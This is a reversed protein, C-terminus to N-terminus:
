RGTRSGDAVPGLRTLDWMSMQQSIVRTDGPRLPAAPAGTNTLTFDNRGARLDVELTVTREEGATVTRRWGGPGSIELTRPVSVPISRLAFTVRHRGAEPAHVWMRGEDRLFRYERGGRLQPPWWSSRQFIAVADLPPATITWLASADPFIRSLRFGPPPTYPDPSALGGAAYIPPSILVLDVGLTRLRAAADPATPSGTGTTVDSGISRGVPDGNVIRLGHVVQGYMHYREILEDAGAPFNYVLTDRPAEDRLWAWAPVDEPALGALALPPDSPLPVGAGPPLEFLSIGLALVLLVAGAAPRMRRALWWLGVAAVVILVATVAVAFRAYVRLFPALDFIVGSPTPIRVGWWRTPTALSFWGLVLVLPGSTVLVLRIRRSLRAWGRMAVVAAVAALALTLYGVFAAREGGPAGLGAWRDNGLLARFAENTSDPVLYDGVRAGYVELEIRSRGFADSVAGRASLFLAALPAVVLVAMPLVVQGCRRLAERAGGERAGEGASALAGVAVILLAMTGYYPNTMWCLATAAALWWGRRRDPREMWRWLALLLLPFCAILALPYHTSARILANPFVAFAVAAWAAALPGLGLWRILLWMAAPALVMGLLLSLNLAAIPGTVQGIAWAPGLFVIQLVNASAPMPRGFPAGIVEQTTVGWLRLGHEATFWVDWAYGSRDGGSGAGPLDTGLHLVLPWTILVVLLLSGALVLAAEAAVRGRPGLGDFRARLRAPGGDPAAQGAPGPDDASRPDTV